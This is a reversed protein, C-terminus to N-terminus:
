ATTFSWTNGEVTTGGLSEDVRWYYTTASTLSPTYTLESQASVLPMDGASTGFYVEYNVSQFQSEWSLDASTSVSIAGDAPTPNIPKSPIPPGTVGHILLYVDFEEETKLVLANDKTCYVPSEFNLTIPIYKGLEIPGIFPTAGNLLTIQKEDEATSVTISKVGHRYDPAAPKLVVGASADTEAVNLIWDVAQASPVLNLETTAM